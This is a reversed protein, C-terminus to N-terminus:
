WVGFCLQNRSHIHQFGELDRAKHAVGAAIPGGESRAPSQALRLDDHHGRFSNRLRQLQDPILLIWTSRVTVESAM